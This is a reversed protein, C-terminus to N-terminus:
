SGPKSLEPESSLLSGALVEIQRRIRAVSYRDPENLHLRALEEGVLQHIHASLDPDPIGTPCHEVLIKRIQTRAMFRGTAVRHHLEPPDGPAPNFLMRWSPSAAAGDLLAQVIGVEAEILDADAPLTALKQQFVSAASHAERDVLASILGGLDGFQDYIDSRICGAERAVRDVTLSSLGQETAM